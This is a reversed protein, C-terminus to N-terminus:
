APPAAPTGPHPHPAGAPHTGGLRWARLALLDAAAARAAAAGARYGEAPRTMDLTAIHSVDPRLRLTNPHQALRLETAHAMLLALARNAIAFQRPALMLRALPTDPTPALLEFRPPADALQVAIVRQAGLAEAVDVPVNNLVGGDVLLEAGRVVPPFIGPIATSAMIAPVLPGETIVVVRGSVLDTATVACPIRLDAFTRDGLLERLLAERKRAGLLGMRTPDRTAIRRLAFAHFIRELQDLPFGAAYLVGVAAGVSTGAIVDIPVDLEELVALVGLHAGGKGGGGGLALGLRRPAAASRPAARQPLMGRQMPTRRALRALDTPWVASLQQAQRRMRHIFREISRNM